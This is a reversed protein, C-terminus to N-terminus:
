FSKRFFAIFGGGSAVPLNNDGSPGSFMLGLCFKWKSDPIGWQSWYTTFLDSNRGTGWLGPHYECGEFVWGEKFTLDFDPIDQFTPIVKAFFGERESPLTYRVGWEEARASSFILGCLFVVFLMLRKM